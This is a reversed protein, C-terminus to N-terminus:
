VLAGRAGPGGDDQVSPCIRRRGERAPGSFIEIMDIRYLPLQFCSAIAKVALSKGCGPIGMLLVGKPVIEATLSDRLQFLKRRELLWAKLTELGGIEGLGKGDSIFEIYGTRGILLRKEEILVPLSEPGLPRGTALARRLAYRAEDLTLGNLTVAVQELVSEGAAAPPV